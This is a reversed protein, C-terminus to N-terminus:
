RPRLVFLALYLIGTVTSVVGAVLVISVIWASDLIRELPISVFVTILAVATLFVCIGFLVRLVRTDQDSSRMKGGAPLSVLQEGITSTAGTRFRAGPHRQERLRHSRLYEKSYRPRRNM